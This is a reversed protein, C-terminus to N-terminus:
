VSVEAAVALDTFELGGEFIEAMLAKAPQSVEERRPDKERARAQEESEFLVLLYVRSPDNQDLLATSRLWGAGRDSTPM